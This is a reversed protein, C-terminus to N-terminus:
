LIGKISIMILCLKFEMVKLNIIKGNDLILITILVM